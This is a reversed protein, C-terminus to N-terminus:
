QHLFNTKSIKFTNHLYFLGSTLYNRNIELNKSPSTNLIVSSKQFIATYLLEAPDNQGTQQAVGAPGYEPTVM